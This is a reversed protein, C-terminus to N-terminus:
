NHKNMVNKIYKKINGFNFGNPDNKDNSENVSMSIGFLKCTQDDVRLVRHDTECVLGRKKIERWVKFTIDPDSLMTGSSVGIYNALEDPVLRPITYEIGSDICINNKNDNYYFLLENYKKELNNYKKELDDYKLQLQENIYKLDKEQSENM